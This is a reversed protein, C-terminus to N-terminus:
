AKKIGEATAQGSKSVVDFNRKAIEAAESLQEKTKIGLAAFAAIAPNLAEPLQTAKQEIKSLGLAVQEGTIVGQKELELLKSKAYDLEARTQATDIAKNLNAALALGTDIGQAKYDDLNDIVIQVDNSASQFASSFSGKLQQTELGTRELAAKM